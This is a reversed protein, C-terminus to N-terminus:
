NNNPCRCTGKRHHLISLEAIKYGELRLASTLASASVGKDLASLAVERDAKPMTNLLTAFPCQTPNNIKRVTLQEIRDALAM